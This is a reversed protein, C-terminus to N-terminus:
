PTAMQFGARYATELHRAENQACAAPDAKSMADLVILQKHLARDYIRDKLMVTKMAELHGYETLHNLTNGAVCLCLASHLAPMQRDGYAFGYTWVRDFWGVLKAPAETWFVPYVFAIADSKLIKDQEARVDEPIPLDTRYHAERLYEAETMDASFNMEYLDSLTYSHGADRLGDLYRLLARHTFSTKSPHAYVVFVHM